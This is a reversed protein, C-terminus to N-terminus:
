LTALPQTTIVYCITAHASQALADRSTAHACFLNNRSRKSCISVYRYVADKLMDDKITEIIDLLVDLGEHNILVNILLKRPRVLLPIAISVAQKDKTLGTVLSHCMVGEAYGTEALLSFNQILEKSLNQLELCEQCPSDKLSPRAMIEPRLWSLTRQHVFPM